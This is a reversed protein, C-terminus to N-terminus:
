YQSKPLRQSAKELWQVNGFSRIEIQDTDMRGAQARLWSQAASRSGRFVIPFDVNKEVSGAYFAVVGPWAYPGRLPNALYWQAESAGAPQTVKKEERLLRSSEILGPELHIVTAKPVADELYRVLERWHEGRRV